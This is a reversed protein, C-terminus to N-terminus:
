NKVCTFEVIYKIAFQQGPGSQDYVMFEDNIVGSKGGQAWVSHYPKINQRNFHYPGAAIKQNGLAVDLLFMFAKDDKGKAWYSSQINTYNVSKSCFGFYCADGFMSGSIIAGSPRILLGNKIIGILSSARTGHWLPLSNSNIYVDKKDKNFELWPSIYKSLSHPIVRKGCAKAIRECSEIFTSEENNRSLKWANLLKIKGLYHHNKAKTGEMMNQIWISENHDNPIWTLNSCLSKYKDDADSNSLQAGVAKADLLDDLDQDKQAIKIQEDLLLYELKGRAGQGLNHPILTYFDNTINELKQKDAKTIKSKVVIEKAEILCSRGKDIQNNTLQGLPCKLITSIFNNTGQFLSNVLYQVETTLNSKAIEDANKLVVAKTIQKAAESGMARQAVDVEKYGKKTKSKVIAGFDKEAEAISNYYRWEKTQTGGTPGWISHLQAKNNTPSTQLELHYSKNSTGNTGAKAGTMDFFSLEIIKEVKYEGDKLM